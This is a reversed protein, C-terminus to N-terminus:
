SARMGVLVLKGLLKDFGASFHLGIAQDGHRDAHLAFSTQFMYEAEKVRQLAEVSQNSNFLDLKRIVLVKFALDAHLDLGDDIM